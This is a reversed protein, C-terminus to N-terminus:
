TRPSPGPDIAVARGGEFLEVAEAIVIERLQDLDRLNEM